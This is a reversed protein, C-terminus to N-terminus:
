RRIIIKTGVQCYRYFDEVDENKMSICGLTWNKYRDIQFDERPWTGHIGIGGGIASSPIEGKIEASHIEGLKRTPYDLASLSAM